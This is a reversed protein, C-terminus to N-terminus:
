LGFKNKKQAIWSSNGVRILKKYQAEVVVNDKLRIEVATHM